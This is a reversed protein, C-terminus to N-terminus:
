RRASSPSRPRPTSGRSSTSGAEPIKRPSPWDEVLAGRHGPPPLGWDAVTIARNVTRTGVGAKAALKEATRGSDQIPHHRDASGSKKDGGGAAMRERAKREEYPKM